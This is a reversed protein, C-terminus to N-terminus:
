KDNRCKICQGYMDLKANVIKFGSVDEIKNKFHIFEPVEINKVDDCDLCVLHAHLGINLEYVCNKNNFNYENVIGEAVLFNINNYVTAVNVEKQIDKLKTIIEEITYHYQVAKSMVSIINERAKTIRFGQARLSDVVIDPNTLDFATNQKKVKAENM